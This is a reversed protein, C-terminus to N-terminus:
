DHSVELMARVASLAARAAQLGVTVNYKVDPDQINTAEFVVEPDLVDSMAQLLKIIDGASSADIKDVGQAELAKLIDVVQNGILSAKLTAGLIGRQAERSILGAEYSDTTVDQVEGIADATDDMYKAVKRVQGDCGAMLVLALITIIALSHKM